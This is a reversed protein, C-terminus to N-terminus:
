HEYRPTVFTFYLFDILSSINSGDDYEILAFNIIQSLAIIKEIEFGSDVTFNILQLYDNHQEIISEISLVNSGDDMKINVLMQRSQNGMEIGFEEAAISASDEPAFEAIETNFSPLPYLQFALILTFFMSTIFIPLSFSSFKDSYRHKGEMSKDGGM